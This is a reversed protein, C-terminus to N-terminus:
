LRSCCLSVSGNVFVTNGVGDLIPACLATGDAYNGGAALMRTQEDILAQALDVLADMSRDAGFNGLQPQGFLTKYFAEAVIQAACM